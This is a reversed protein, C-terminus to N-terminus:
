NTLWYMHSLNGKAMTNSSRGMLIFSQPITGSTGSTVIGWKGNAKEIGCILEIAGPLAMAKSYARNTQTWKSQGWTTPPYGGGMSQHIGL